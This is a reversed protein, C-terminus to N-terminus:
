HESWPLSLRVKYSVAEALLYGAAFARRGAESFCHCAPHGLGGAAGHSHHAVCYPCAFVLSGGRRKVHVIPLGSKGGTYPWPLDNM